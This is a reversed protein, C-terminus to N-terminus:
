RAIWRLRSLMSISIFVFSVYVIRIHVNRYIPRGNEPIYLYMHHHSQVFFFLLLFFM